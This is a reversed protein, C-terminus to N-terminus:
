EQGMGQGGLGIDVVVVREGAALMARHAAKARHFTVTLCPFEARDFWKLRAGEPEADSVGSPVDVACLHVRGVTSLDSARDCFADWVRHVEPGLPRSLGIGFLADVVLLPARAELGGALHELVERNWGLTPGIREWRRWMALADAPLRDSEGLLCVHVEWGRQRLLRAIVFGDGGNNGPGCLVIGQRARREDQGFYRPPEPAAGGDAPLALAPWEALVAEVVGQGAREMLELGTVAGSDIAAVEIARMQASTLLETM